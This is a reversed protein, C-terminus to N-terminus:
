VDEHVELVMLTMDDFQDEQGRFDQLANFVQDCIEDASSQKLSSLLVKLREAGFFHGNSGIVDSLGDSYLVLRDGPQLTIEEESLRLSEEDLIGLVTGDGPLLYNEGARLLLPREHGARVYRMRRVHRDIVGYFISVFGNLEGLELLLRNVNLLADKPSLQRHAEALLLSRSLAMYLAAPMGKDAVDAVVIGFHDDDLRIVDYFDGGVQRASESHVALSFGKFSPFSTPLLSQQVQRALELEHEMREKKVLEAQALELQNIKARLEDVLGARQIALAAQNAFTQLLATEGPTFFGKQTSQVIMVGVVQDQALLPVRLGSQIQKNPGENPLFEPRPIIGPPINKFQSVKKDLSKGLVQEGAVLIQVDSGEWGRVALVAVRDGPKENSRVFYLIARDAGCLEGARRCVRNGLESLSVSAILAQGLDELSILVETRQLLVRNTAELEFLKRNLTATAGSLARESYILRSYTRRLLDTELWLLDRLSIKGDVALRLVYEELSLQSPQGLFTEIDFAAEPLSSQHDLHFVDFTAVDGSRGSQHCTPCSGPIYFKVGRRLDPQSGTGSSPALIENQIISALNPFRQLLADFHLARPTHPQRCNKCLTPLRQMTLIWHLCGFHAPSINLDLLQRIVGSGRQATDITTIVKLGKEAARFIALVSEPTIRDYVLLAPHSNVAYDTQRDYTLLDDVLYLQVRRKLQRPVRALDKDKSIFIAQSLPDASLIAQILIGFLTSLGSPLLGDGPRSPLMPSDQVSEDDTWVPQENGSSEIGAIVALGSQDNILQDIWSNLQPLHYFDSLKLM